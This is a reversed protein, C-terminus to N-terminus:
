AESAQDQWRRGMWFRGWDGHSTLLAILAYLSCTFSGLLMVFFVWVASRPISRERYIIWCSFLTFMIYVDVLSVIGWPMSLLQSGEGAFDGVTFGYLLVVGMTVTGILAVALAIRM